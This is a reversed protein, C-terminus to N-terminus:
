APVIVDATCVVGSATLRVTVSAAGTLRGVRQDLEGRRATGKWTIRRDQIIVASWTSTSRPSVSTRVRMEDDAVIEVRM